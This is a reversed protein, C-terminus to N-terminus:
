ALGLLLLLYFGNLMFQFVQNIVQIIRLLRLRFRVNSPIVEDSCWRCLHIDSLKQFSASGSM